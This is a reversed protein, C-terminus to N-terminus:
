GRINSSAGAVCLAGDAISPLLWNHCFSHRVRCGDSRYRGAIKEVIRFAFVLLRSRGGLLLPHPPLAFYLHLHLVFSAVLRGGRRLLTTSERKWNDRLSLPLDAIWSIKNQHRERTEVNRLRVHESLCRALSCLCGHCWLPSFCDRFWLDFCDLTRIPFPLKQVTDGTRTQSPPFKTTCVASGFGTM